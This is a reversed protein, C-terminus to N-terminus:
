DGPGGDGAEGGMGTLKGGSIMDLGIFLLAGALALLLLAGAREGWPSRSGPGTETMARIM